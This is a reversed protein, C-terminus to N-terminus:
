QGRGQWPGGEEHAGEDCAEHKWQKQERLHERAHRWATHKADRCTRVIPVRAARRFVRLRVRMRMRMGIARRMAVRMVRPMVLHLAGFNELQDGARRVFKARVRIRATAMEM